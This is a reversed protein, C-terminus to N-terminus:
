KWTVAAKGSLISFPIIYKSHKNINVNLVTHLKEHAKKAFIEVITNILPYGDGRRCSIDRISKQFSNQIQVSMLLIVSGLLLDYQNQSECLVM